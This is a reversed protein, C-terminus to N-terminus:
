DPLELTEQPYENKRHAPKSENTQRSRDLEGPFNNLFTLLDRRHRGDNGKAMERETYQCVSELDETSVPMAAKFARIEKASWQTSSRRNYVKAIRIAEPSTPRTDKPEEEERGKKCHAL